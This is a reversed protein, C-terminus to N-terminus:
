EYKKGGYVFAGGIIPIQEVWFRKGFFHILSFGQVWNPNKIYDPNLDCLCGNEWWGWTGFRDRKYFSGMRHCHGCIGCGGHKEYMRKATYGSHISAIDGHVILFLGNVMLGHEYPIHPIGFEGLGFLEPITLCRLSSLERASTWLFKQLRYEHNGDLWFKKTRPLLQDHRRLMVKVQSVDAQLEDVRSPNKDFKSIQYFDPIDGTYILYDPVVVEALFRETLRVIRKDQYPIQYDNTIAFVTHKNSPTNVEIPIYEEIKPTADSLGVEYVDKVSHLFSAKSAFSYRKWLELIKQFDRALIADIVERGEPSDKDPLKREPM